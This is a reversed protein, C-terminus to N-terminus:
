TSVESTSGSWYSGTGLEKEYQYGRNKLADKLKELSMNVQETQQESDEM